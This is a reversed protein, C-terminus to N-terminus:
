VLPTSTLALSIPPPMMLDHELATSFFLPFHGYVCVKVDL